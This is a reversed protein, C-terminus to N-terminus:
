PVAPAVWIGVVLSSVLLARQWRWVYLVAVALICLNLGAYYSSVVGDLRLILLEIGTACVIPPGAGLLVPPRRAREGSPLALCLLAAAAACMRVVFFEGALAPVTVFDLTFGAPMLIASLVFGLRAGALNREDLSEEFAVQYAAPTGM